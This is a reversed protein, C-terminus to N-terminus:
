GGRIDLRDCGENEKGVEPRGPEFWAPTDIDPGMRVDTQGGDGVEELSLDQM